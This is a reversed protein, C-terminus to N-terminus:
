VSLLRALSLSGERDSAREREKVRKKKASQLDHQGRVERTLSLRETQVLSARDFEAGPTAGPGRRTM